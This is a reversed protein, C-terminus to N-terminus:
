FSTRVQGFNWGMEQISDKDGFYIIGSDNLVYEIKENEDEMFVDDDSSLCAIFM